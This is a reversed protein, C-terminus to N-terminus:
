HEPKNQTEQMTAASDAISQKDADASKSADVSDENADEAEMKKLGDLMGDLQGLLSDLRAELGDTVGEAADLKELLGAISAEDLHSLDDESAASLKLATLLPELSSNVNDGNGNAQAATPNGQNSISAPASSAASSSLLRNLYNLDDSM